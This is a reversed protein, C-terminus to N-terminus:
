GTGESVATARIRYNLAKEAKVNIVRYVAGNPHNPGTILVYMADGAELDAGTLLSLDTFDPTIPGIDITGSGLNALALQEDNLWTVKPPFGDQEHISVSDSLDVDGTHQGM